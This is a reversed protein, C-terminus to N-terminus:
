FAFGVAASTFLLHYAGGGLSKEVAGEPAQCRSGWCAQDISLGAGFRAAVGNAFRLAVAIELNAWLVKGSPQKCLFALTCFPAYKGYSASAAPGISFTGSQLPRFHFGLAGQPGAGGIGAGGGVALEPVLAHEAEAHLIGM